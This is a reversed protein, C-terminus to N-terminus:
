PDLIELQRFKPAIVKTSPSVIQPKHLSSHQKALTDLQFPTLTFSDRGILEDDLAVEPHSRRLHEQFRHIYALTFRFDSCYSCDIEYAHRTALHELKRTTFSTNCIRCLVQLESDIYQFSLGRSTILSQAADCFPSDLPMLNRVFLHRLAPLVIPDTTYGEDSQRLACLIGTSLKGDISLTRVGGFPRVLQLWQHGEVDGQSSPFDDSNFVLHKLGSLRPSFQRCVQAMSSLQWDLQTCSIQIRLHTSIVSNQFSISISRASIQMEAETLPTQMETREVFQGLQSADMTPRSFFTVDIDRLRRADIRAVFSDLYKSIGRYKFRTLAPLVICPGTPPLGHYNQRPPCSLFYLSLSRLHSAGSLANAFAQPSFYGAMPVEHLQIDVLDTSSSLLKPLAPIAIRTVHLTRLRSGWRFSGPLTLQLKDQSLLVLEELKSFPESITSLKGLLSKTLTLSISNVRDSQEQLAAVINDEDEPAPPDLM